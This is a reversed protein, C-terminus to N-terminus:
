GGEFGRVKRWITALTVKEFSRGHMGYPSATIPAQFDGGGAM